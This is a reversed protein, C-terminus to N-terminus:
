EGAKWPYVLEIGPFDIQSKHHFFFPTLVHKDLLIESM